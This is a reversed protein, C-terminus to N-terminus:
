LIASIWVANAARPLVSISNGSSSVRLVGDVISIDIRTDDIDFEVTANDPIGHRDIAYRWSIKSDPLDSKAATEKALELNRELVKIKFQAWKPLKTVDYM